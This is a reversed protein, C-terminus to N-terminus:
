RVAMVELRGDRFRHLYSGALEYPSSLLQYDIKGILRRRGTSLEVHHVGVDALPTTQPRLVLLRGDGFDSAAPRGPVEDGLRRGTRADVVSVLPQRGEAATRPEHSTVIRDGLVAWIGEDAPLTWRRGGTQPDIGAIGTASSLCVVPGCGQTHGGDTLETRWSETLTDLRYATLVFRVASSAQVLVHDGAFSLHREDGDQKPLSRSLLPTGDDYRLLGLQGGSDVAIVGPSGDRLRARVVGGRAAPRQWITRGNRAGALRLRTSGPEAGRERLLVTDATHAEVQGSAQWLRDGTAADLVDHDNGSPVLLVGAGPLLSIWGAAVAALTTQRTWRVQGTALDYATLRGADAVAQHIWVTAQDTQSILTGSVPATWVTRITPDGAPPSHLTGLCVVTVLGVLIGRWRQVVPERDPGPRYPDGLDGLDIIAM